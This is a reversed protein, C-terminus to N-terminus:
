PLGRKGPVAIAGRDPPAVAAPVVATGTSGPAAGSAPNDDGLADYLMDDDLESPLADTAATEGESPAAAKTTAM